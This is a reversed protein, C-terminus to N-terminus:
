AQAPGPALERRPLGFVDAVMDLVASGSGVKSEAFQLSRALDDRAQAYPHHAHEAVWRKVNETELYSGSALSGPSYYPRPPCRCQKSNM